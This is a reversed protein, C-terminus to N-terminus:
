AFPNRDNGAMAAMPVADFVKAGYDITFSSARSLVSVGVIMAKEESLGWVDFIPANAAIAGVGQVTVKGILMDPLVLYDGALVQGTVGQVTARDVRPMRPHARILAEALPRNVICEDAGTDLMMRANVRGIRGDVEALVGNRVRMNANRSARAERRSAEVTVRKDAINFNLRKGAFVDAGLIGDQRLLYKDEIVAVNVDRVVVRGTSITALQATPLEASGTTGNVTALGTFPAGVTEVLRHAVVSKNAGTDVIFRYPGFGNLMVRATPRGWQDVWAELPTPDRGQPMDQDGAGQRSAWAPAGMAFAALGPAALMMQRRTARFDM